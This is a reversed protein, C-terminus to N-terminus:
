YKTKGKYILREACIGNNSREFYMTGKPIVFKYLRGNSIDILFDYIDEKNKYAHYGENIVFYNMGAPIPKINVKKTIKNKLYLFNKRVGPRFFMDFLYSDGDTKYVTIDETSTKGACENANLTLCM